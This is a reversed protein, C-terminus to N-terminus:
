LPKEEVLGNAHKAFRGAVDTHVQDLDPWPWGGYETARYDAFAQRIEQETNMVFPGYQAIPENIPKGQLLLFECPQTGAILEISQDSVLQYGNMARSQQGNITTEDGQYFYLMRNLGHASAPLTLIAGAEMKVNWVAVHNDTDAAWSEPPPALPTHEHYKGAIVTVQSSRGNLDTHKAIPTHDSWLMAFHPEVMKSKAPLNLWIQFLELPNPADPKLLPFIESHQVGKGATMWQTDGSGYRGAAGLSDAHDIIGENVVTITEFGRHPHAPFGPVREGHYMNWGDIQAFDQGINRGKLSPKPGYQGNSQPYNDKHYACFLFPDLTPWQSQILPFKQIIATM